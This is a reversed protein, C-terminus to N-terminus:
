RRCYWMRKQHTTATPILTTRWSSRVTAGISRGMLVDTRTQKRVPSVRKTHLRNTETPDDGDDGVLLRGAIGRASCNSSGERADVEEKASPSTSVRGRARNWGQHIFSARKNPKHPKRISDNRWTVRFVSHAGAPYATLQRIGQNDM